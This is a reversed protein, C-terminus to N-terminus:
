ELDAFNDETDQYELTDSYDCMQYYQELQGGSHFESTDGKEAEDAITLLKQALRRLQDSTMTANKFCPLNELIILPANTDYDRTLRSFLTMNKTM